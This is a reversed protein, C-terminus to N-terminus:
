CYFISGEICYRQHHHNGRVRACTLSLLPPPFIYLSKLSPPPSHQSRPFPAVCDAVHQVMHSLPENPIPCALSSFTPLMKPMRTFTVCSAPTTGRKYVRQWRSVRKTAEYSVRFRLRKRSPFFDIIILSNKDKIIFVKVILIICLILYLPKFLKLNCFLFGYEPGFGNLGM